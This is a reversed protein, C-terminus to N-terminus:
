RIGDWGEEVEELEHDKLKALHTKAKQLCEGLSETEFLSVKHIFTRSM